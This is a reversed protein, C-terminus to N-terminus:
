AASEKRRPYIRRVFTVDQNWLKAIADAQQDTLAPNYRKPDLAKSFEQSTMFISAAVDSKRLRPREDRHLYFFHDWDRARMSNQM